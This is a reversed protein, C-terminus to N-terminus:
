QKGAWAKPYSWLLEGTERDVVLFTSGKETHLIKECKAVADEFSVHYHHYKMALMSFQITHLVEFPYEEVPPPKEKM